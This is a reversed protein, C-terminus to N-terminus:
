FYAVVPASMSGTLVVGAGDPRIRDLDIKALVTVPSDFTLGHLLVIEASSDNATRFFNYSDQENGQLFTRCMGFGAASRVCLQSVKSMDIKPSSPPLWDTPVKLVILMPTLTALYDSPTEGPVVQRRDPPLDLWTTPKPATALTQEQVFRVWEQYRVLGEPDTLIEEILASPFGQSSTIGRSSGFTRLTDNWDQGCPDLSFASGDPRIAFVWYLLPVDRDSRGPPQGAFGVFNTTRPAEALLLALDNPDVEVRRVEDVDLGTDIRVVGRLDAFRRYHKPHKDASAEIGSFRVWGNELAAWM